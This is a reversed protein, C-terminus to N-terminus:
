LQTMMQYSLCRIIFSLLFFLFSNSICTHMTVISSATLFLPIERLSSTITFFSGESQSLFPSVVGNEIVGLRGNPAAFSPVQPVASVLVCM